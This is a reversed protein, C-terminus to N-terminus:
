IDRAKLMLNFAEMEETLRRMSREGPAEKEYAENRRWKVRAERMREKGEDTCAPWGLTRACTGRAGGMCSRKDRCSKHKCELWANIDTQLLKAAHFRTRIDQTM